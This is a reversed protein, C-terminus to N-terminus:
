VDYKHAMQHRGKQTEPNNRITPIVKQSWWTRSEKKLFLVIMTTVPMRTPSPLDLGHSLRITPQFKYM